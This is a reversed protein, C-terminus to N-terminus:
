IQEIQCECITHIGQNGVHDNPVITSRINNMTILCSTLASGKITAGQNIKLLCHQKLRCIYNTVLSISVIKVVRVVVRVVIVVVWSSM